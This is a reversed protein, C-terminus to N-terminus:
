YSKGSFRSASRNEKRGEKKPLPRCILKFFFFLGEAIDRAEEDSIEQGTEKRYIEKFEEIAKRSLPM